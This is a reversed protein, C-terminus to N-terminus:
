IFLEIIKLIAAFLAAWDFTSWDIASVQVEGRSNMPLPRGESEAKELVYQEIAALKRPRMVARSIKALDSDSLTGNQNFEIAAELIAERSAKRERRGGFAQLEASMATAEPLTPAVTPVQSAVPGVSTIVSGDVDRGGTVIYGSWDTIASTRVDPWAHNQQSCDKGFCKQLISRLPKVEQAFAPCGVFLLVAVVAFRIM